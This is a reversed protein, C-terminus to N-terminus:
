RGPPLPYYGYKARVDLNPVDVKVEIERYTSSPAAKTMYGLTYQNRADGMAGAYAREIANQSFETYVEGGTAAAYRPLLNDYGQRPLHLKNLQRYVPLASSDTAVAYVSIENQLLVKLTDAYSATSGQEKGDSIIFIVRRRTRDQKSLDLAARLIADNLVHAQKTPTNVPVPGGGAPMGNITPGGSLPGNLVPVGNNQGRNVKLSNLLTTLRQNPPSFDSVKTVATSYTYISIQDYQSFAGSMASFTQNIKQVSADPLGLDYIVAASLFFPDSTFYTLKQKVGDELVSFDEPLLGEMLRGSTKNKVTVPVAVFNVNRIITYIQDRSNTNPAPAPTAGGEPVTKIDPMPPPSQDSGSGPSPSPQDSPPSTDASAPGPSISPTATTSPLQQPPKTASPADPIDQKPQQQAMALQAALVVVAFLWCAKLWKDDLSQTRRTIGATLTFEELNLHGPLRFQHM